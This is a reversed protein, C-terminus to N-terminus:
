TAISDIIRTIAKEYEEQRAPATEAIAKYIHEQRRVHTRVASQYRPITGGFNVPPGHPARPGGFVIYAKTTTAQAVIASALPVPHGGGQHRGKPALQRARAVAIEASAKNAVQLERPTRGDAAKLAAALKRADVVQRVVVADNAM